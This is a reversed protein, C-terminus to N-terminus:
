IDRFITFKSISQIMKRESFTVDDVNYNVLALMRNFLFMPGSVNKRETRSREM